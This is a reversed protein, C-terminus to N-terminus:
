MFCHGFHASVLWSRRQGCSALRIVLRSPRIWPLPVGNQVHESASQVMWTDMCSHQAQSLPLFRARRKSLSLELFVRGPFTEPCMCLIDRKGGLSGCPLLPKFGLVVLGARNTLRDMLKGRGSTPSELEGSTKEPNKKERRLDRALGRKGPLIEPAKWHEAGGGWNRSGLM